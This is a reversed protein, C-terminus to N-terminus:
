SPGRQATPQPRLQILVNAVTILGGGILLSWTVTENAYTIGCWVSYLAPMVVAFLSGFIPEFCYILGAETATIKPQWTNMILFAGLTCALTLMLTLGAWPLSSCLQWVASASPAVCLLLGSLIVAQVSLMVLTIRIPDNHAFERRELCLIQGMFFVSSALTEWEGRGFSLTRWDFHGVFAVGALVLIGCLWVRIGPSRRLRFAVLAPILLAYLQTLFASTSAHTFQLGDNQLIMGLSTFLGLEIGQRLECRTTQGLKRVQWLWMVLAALIYRPAVLMITVFWHTSGTLLAEHVLALAKITPFSLGWFVNAVLLMLLARVHQPHRVSPIAM